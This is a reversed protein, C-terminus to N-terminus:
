QDLFMCCFKYTIHRRPASKRQLHVRNALMSILDDFACEASTLGYSLLFILLLQVLVGIEADGGALIEVLVKILHGDV